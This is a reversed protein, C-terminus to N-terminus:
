RKVRDTFHATLLFCDDSLWTVVVCLYKEGVAPHKYRRHYLRVDPDSDSRVVLDPEALTAAIHPEEGAMEPHERALHALREDTDRM